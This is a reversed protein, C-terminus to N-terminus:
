LLKDLGQLGPIGAAKQRVQSMTIKAFASSSSLEAVAARMTGIAMGVASALQHSKNV